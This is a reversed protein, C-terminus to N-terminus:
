AAAKRRKKEELRGREEVMADPGEMWGVCVCVCVCACVCMGGGGCVCVCRITSCSERSSESCQQQRVNLVFM